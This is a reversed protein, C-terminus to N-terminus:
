LEQLSLGNHVCLYASCLSTRIPSEHASGRNASRVKGLKRNVSRTAMAAGGGLSSVGAGM